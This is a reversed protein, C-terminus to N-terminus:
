DEEDVPFFHEVLATVNRDLYEYESKEDDTLGDRNKKRILEARRGNVRRWGDTGPHPFDTPVSEFPPVPEAELPGDGDALRALRHRTTVELQKVALEKAVSYVARFFRADNKGGGLFRRNVFLHKIEKLTNSVVWDVSTAATLGLGYAVGKALVRAQEQRGQTLRVTEPQVLYRVEAKTPKRLRDRQRFSM